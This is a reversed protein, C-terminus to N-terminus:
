LRAWCTTSTILRRYTKARNNNWSTFVADRAMVLQTHPDQPFDKKTHKVILKKYEVIIEKLWDATLETDLKIHKKKKM